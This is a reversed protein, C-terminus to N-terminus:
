GHQMTKRYVSVLTDRMDPSLEDTDIRGTAAITARLQKLYESCHPCEHLHRELDRRRNAPLAEDLYDTM